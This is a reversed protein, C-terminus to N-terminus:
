FINIVINNLLKESSQTRMWICLKGGCMKVKRRGKVWGWHLAVCGTELPPKRKIM